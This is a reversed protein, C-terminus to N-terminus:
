QGISDYYRIVPIFSEPETKSIKIKNKKIFEKIQDNDENLVKLLDHKNAVQYINGGKLLYIRTTPYFLDYKDDVALLQIEKKYKVILETKGKYLLNVFGKIAPLSDDQTNIFKYTKYNFMLTFSDVVEKNLQLFFGRNTPTIIEDKYIDYNINLDKFTEGNITVSGKLFDKSFLFQDGKVLSYVNHWVKGTYLIQNEQPPAQQSINVPLPQGFCQVTNLSSGSFLTFLFIYLFNNRNM